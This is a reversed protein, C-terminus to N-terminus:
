GRQGRREQCSLRDQGARPLRARRQLNKNIIHHRTDRRHIFRALPLQGEAKLLGALMFHINM